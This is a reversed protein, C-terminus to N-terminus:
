RDQCRKVTPYISQFNINEPLAKKMSDGITADVLEEKIKDVLNNFLGKDAVGNKEFLDKFLTSREDESGLIIKEINEPLEIEDRIVDSLKIGIHAAASQIIAKLVKQDGRNKVDKYINVVDQVTIVEGLIRKRFLPVLTSDQEKVQGQMRVISEILETNDGPIDNVFSTDFSKLVDTWITKLRTANRKRWVRM